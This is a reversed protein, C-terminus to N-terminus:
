VARAGGRRIEVAAANAAVAIEGLPVLAENAEARAEILTKAGRAKVLTKQLGIANKLISAILDPFEGM